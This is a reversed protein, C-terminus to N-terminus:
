GPPSGFPALDFFWGFQLQLAGATLRAPDVLYSLQLAWSAPRRFVGFSFGARVSDTPPLASAAGLKPFLVRQSLSASIVLEWRTFQLGYFLPVGWELQAWLPLGFRGALAGGGLLGTSVIHTPGSTEVRLLEGKLDTTLGFQFVREPAFLQGQAQASVGVDFGAGLGLRGNARVEPLPIGDPYETCRTLGLVGGRLEGCFGAASLQGGVRLQGRDVVSATQLPVVTACGTLMVLVLAARM